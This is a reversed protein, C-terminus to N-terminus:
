SSYKYLPYTCCYVSLMWLLSISHMHRDCHKHTHTGDNGSLNILQIGCVHIVMQYTCIYQSFIGYCHTCTLTHLLALPTCLQSGDHACAHEHVIHSNFTTYLFLLGFDSCDYGLPRPLFLVLIKAIIIAFQFAKYVVLPNHSHTAFLRVRATNFVAM